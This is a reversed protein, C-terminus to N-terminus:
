LTGTAVMAIEKFLLVLALAIRPEMTWSKVQHSVVNKERVFKLQITANKKLLIGNANILPLQVPKVNVPSSKVVRSSNLNVANILQASELLIKVLQVLARGYVITVTLNGQQFLNVFVNPFKMLWFKEVQNAADTALALEQQTKANRKRRTGDVPQHIASLADVLSIVEMLFTNPKAAVIELAFKKQTKVYIALEM